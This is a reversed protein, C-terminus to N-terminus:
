RGARLADLNLLGEELQARRAVVNGERLSRGDYGAPDKGLLEVADKVIRDVMHPPIHRKTDGVDYGDHIRVFIYGDKIGSEAIWQAVANVACLPSDIIPVFVRQVEGDVGVFEVILGDPTFKLRGLLVSVLEEPRLAASVGLLLLAINRTWRLSEPATAVLQSLDPALLPEAKAARGRLEDLRRRVRRADCPSSERIATHAVTIAALTREITAISVKKKSLDNIYAVITKPEAPMARRGRRVCWNAFETVESGTPAPAAVVVPTSEARPPTKGALQDTLVSLWDARVWGRTAYITGVNKVVNRLAADKDLRFATAGAVFQVIMNVDVEDLREPRDFIALLCRRVVEEPLHRPFVPKPLQHPGAAIVAALLAQGGAGKLAEPIEVANMDSIMMRRRMPSDFGTVLQQDATPDSTDLGEPPNSAILPTALVELMTDDPEPFDREGFTYIVTAARVEPKARALEDLGVIPAAAVSRLRAAGAPSRRVTASAATEKFLRLVHKKADGGALTVVIRMVLTKLRLGRGLLLFTALSEAFVRHYRGAAACLALEIVARHVDPLVQLESPLPLRPWPDALPPRATTMAEGRDNLSYGVRKTHIVLDLEVLRQLRLHLTSKAEGVQRVLDDLSTPTDRKLRRLLDLLEPGPDM